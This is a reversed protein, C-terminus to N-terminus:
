ETAAIMEEIEKQLETLKERPKPKAKGKTKKGFSPKSKKDPTTASKKLNLLERVSKETEEFLEDLTYEPHEAIIQEAKMGVIRKRDPTNLDPNREYFSEAARQMATQQSVSHKIVNPISLLVDEKLNRGLEVGKKYVMNLVKNFVKPDSTLDEMDMDGVFDVDEIPADTTPAKTTPTDTSAGKIKTGSMLAELEAIRRKAKTLEDEEDVEDEEPAKTTPADTVSVDGGTAPADTTISDSTPEDTTPADTSVDGEDSGDGPEDTTPANTVLELMEDLEKRLDSDDM